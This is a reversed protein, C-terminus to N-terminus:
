RIRNFEMRVSRIGLSYPTHLICESLGRVEKVLKVAQSSHPVKKQWNVLCECATSAFLNSLLVISQYLVNRLVLRSACDALRLGMLNLIICLKAVGDSFAQVRDLLSLM